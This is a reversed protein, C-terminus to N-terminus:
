SRASAGQRQPLLSVGLLGIVILDPVIPVFFFFRLVMLIHAVNALAILVVIRRLREPLASAMPALLWLLAAEVLCAGAALLAYGFYLDWYSRHAGSFNFAYQKMAAVVTLEAPGHSPKALTVLTGHALGQLLAVLAAARIANARM